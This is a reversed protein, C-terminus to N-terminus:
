SDPTPGSARTQQLAADVPTGQAPTVAPAGSSASTDQEAPAGAPQAPQAATQKAAKRERKADRQQQKALDRQRKAFSYNTKAM